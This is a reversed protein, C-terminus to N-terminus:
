PPSVKAERKEDDKRFSELLELWQALPSDPDMPQALKAVAEELTAVEYGDVTTFTRGSDNRTRREWKKGFRPEEIAVYTQFAMGRAGDGFMDARLQMAQLQEVTYAKGENSM